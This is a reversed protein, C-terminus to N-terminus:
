QALLVGISTKRETTRWFKWTRRSRHVFGIDRAHNKDQNIEKDNSRKETEATPNKPLDDRVTERESVDCECKQAIQTKDVWEHTAEKQRERRVNTSEQTM